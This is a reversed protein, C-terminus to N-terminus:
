PNSIYVIDKLQEGNGYTFVFYYTGEPLPNGNKNTGAWDNQYDQISVIQNGQENFIQLINNPYADAAFVSRWFILHDNKGDQFTTIITNYEVEPVIEFYVNAEDCFAAPCNPNCVKYTFFDRGVYLDNTRAVFSGDETLQISAQQANSTIDVQFSNRFTDNELINGSVEDDLVLTYNDDNTLPLLEKILRLTDRSYDPCTNTSLTWILSSEISQFDRVITTNNFPDVIFLDSETTWEGSTEDPLNAILEHTDGCVFQEDSVGVDASEHFRIRIDIVSDCGNTAQFPNIERGNLKDAGYEVGNVVVIDNPCLVTDIVQIGPTCIEITFPESFLVISDLLINDNTVVCRYRGADTYTINDFNLNNDGEILDFFTEDKIWLYNNSLLGEDIGLDITLTNGAAVVFTTDKFFSQQIEYRFDTVQTQIERLNPLIHEYTFRNDQVYLRELKKAPVPIVGSLNNSRLYVSQLSDMGEFTPVEGILENQRLELDKLKKLKSLDPIEGSLRNWQLWLQELDPLDLDPIPGSFNNCALSLYELQTFGELKPLEGTFGQQPLSLYELETLENISIPLEAIRPSPISCLVNNALGPILEIVRICTNEIDCDNILCTILPRECCISNWELISPNDWGCSQKTTDPLIDYLELLVSKVLTTDCSQPSTVPPEVVINPKSSLALWLFGVIGLFHYLYNM